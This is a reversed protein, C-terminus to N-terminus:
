LIVHFSQLRLSQRVKIVVHVIFNMCVLFFFSQLLRDVYQMIYADPLAILVGFYPGVINAYSVISHTDSRRFSAARVEAPRLLEAVYKLLVVIRAVRTQL